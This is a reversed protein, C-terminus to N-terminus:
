FLNIRDHRHSSNFTYSSRVLRDSSLGDYNTIFVTASTVIIDTWTYCILQKATVIFLNVFGVYLLDLLYPQFKINM